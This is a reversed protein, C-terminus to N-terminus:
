YGDRNYKDETEQGGSTSGPVEKNGGPDREPVITTEVEPIEEPGDVELNGRLYVVGKLMDDASTEPGGM